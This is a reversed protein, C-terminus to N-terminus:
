SSKKEPAAKKAPPAEKAPATGAPKLSGCLPELQKAFNVARQALWEDQRINEPLEGRATRQVREVDEPLGILAGVIVVLNWANSDINLLIGVTDDVGEATDSFMSRSPWRQPQSGGGLIKDVAKNLRDVDVGALEAVGTTVALLGEGMALCRNWRTRRDELGNLGGNVYKTALVIDRADAADNMPRQTMWYWTVGIFGYKDSALQGPDDVFFTPSPVLGKDFAWQSLVTYNHRGTVQIPGRGKFRRGDGPQVNGLDARGEYDDGSALEEMWRLGGSEHGLQAMWMAVREVTNCQCDRLCQQVAPLLARYRDFPVSGGMARVLVDAATDVPAAPAAGLDAFAYGKPPILTAAQDFSIWYGFPAFGPDAIWVARLAPDDDYGMCAVYHFIHGGGYNPSPSGKVGVPHNGPPSEWNMVVGFGANISRVVNAWLAEKETPNAPDHDIYVSTYRADAVRVDLVREILGVYDTGNVTTGIESILDDESAIIGRSNLVVQTSAPGCDWSQEQGVIGHDYPLVKETM